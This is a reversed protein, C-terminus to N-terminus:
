SFISGNKWTHEPVAADHIATLSSSKVMTDCEKFAAVYKAEAADLKKWAAGYETWDGADYEKLAAEYENWAAELKKLATSLEALLKSLASRFKSLNTTHTFLCCRAAQEIEKSSM